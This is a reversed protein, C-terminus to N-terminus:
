SAGKPITLYWQKSGTPAAASNIANERQTVESWDYLPVQFPNSSVHSIIDVNRSNAVFSGMQVSHNLASIVSLIPSRECYSETTQKAGSQPYSEETTSIVLDLNLGYAM